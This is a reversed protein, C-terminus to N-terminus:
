KLISSAHTILYQGTFPPRSEETFHYALFMDELRKNVGEIIVPKVM